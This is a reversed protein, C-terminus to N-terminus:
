LRALRVSGDLRTVSASQYDYCDIYVFWSDPETEGGSLGLVSLTTSSQSDQDAALCGFSVLNSGYSTLPMETIYQDNDYWAIINKGSAKAALIENVRKDASFVPTDEVMEMTIEVRFDNNVPQPAVNDVAYKVATEDATKPTIKGGKLIKRLRETM